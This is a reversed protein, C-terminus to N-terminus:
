LSAKTNKLCSSPPLPGFSASPRVLMRFVAYTRPRNSKVKMPPRYGHACSRDACGVDGETKHGDRDLQKGRGVAGRPDGEVHQVALAARAHPLLVDARLFVVDDDRAILDPL